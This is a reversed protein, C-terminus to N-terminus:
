YTITDVTKKNLDLLKIIERKSKWLEESRGLYIRWEKKYFDKDNKHTEVCSKYNLQETIFTRCQSQLYAIDTNKLPMTCRPIREIYDLCQDNFANPPEPQEEDIARPCERPLSPTFDQFQEFYGTCKNLRFSYGTPSRGTVVVVKDGPSIFVPDEVNVVGAFPLEVGEGIMASQGTVPSRIEFGTILVKGEHQSSLSFTLYETEPKTSFRNAAYFNSIDKSLPSSEAAIRAKEIEKQIETATPEPKSPTPAPSIAFISGSPHEKATENAAWATALVVIIIFGLPVGKM